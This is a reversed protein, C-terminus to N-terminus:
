SQRWVAQPLVRVPRAANEESHLGVTKKPDIHHIELALSIRHCLCCAFWARKRVARKVALPFEM